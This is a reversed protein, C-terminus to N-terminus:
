SFQRSPDRRACILLECGNFRAEVSEPDIPWPLEFSRTFRKQIKEFITLGESIYRLQEQVRGEVVLENGEASIFINQPSALTMIRIRVGSSEYEIESPLMTLPQEDSAERNFGAARACRSLLGFIHRKTREVTGSQTSPPDRLVAVFPM